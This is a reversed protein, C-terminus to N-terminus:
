EGDWQYAVRPSGNALRIIGCRVFGYGEVHRQMVRNDAHTDIRIHRCRAACYDAAARFVGRLTGDSAVRHIAIYPADNPWAGNEIARYNPDEGECLAFVGHVAGDETLVRCRGAAIDAAILERTPYFHGWQTPNGARIMFDQAARYVRMIGDLDAPVATRVDM